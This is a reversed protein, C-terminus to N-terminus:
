FHKFFLVAHEIKFFTIQVNDVSLFCQIGYAFLDNAM